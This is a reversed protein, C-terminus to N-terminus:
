AMVSSTSPKTSYAGWIVLTSLSLICPKPALSRDPNSHHFSPKSNTPNCSLRELSEGPGTLSSKCPDLRAVPAAPHGAAVLKLM